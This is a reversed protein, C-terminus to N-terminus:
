HKVNMSQAIWISFLKFFLINQRHKRQKWWKCNIKTMKVSCLYRCYFLYFGNKIDDFCNRLVALYVTLRNSRVDFCSNFIILSQSSHSGFSGSYNELLQWKINAMLEKNKKRQINMTLHATLQFSIMMWHWSGTFKLIFLNSLWGHTRQKNESFITEREGKRRKKKSRKRIIGISFWQFSCAGRILKEKYRCGNPKKKWNPKMLIIRCLLCKPELM